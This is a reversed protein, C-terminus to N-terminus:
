YGSAEDLLARRRRAIVITAVRIFLIAGASDLLVDYFSSTRGVLSRQHLEDACAVCFTCLVALTAASFPLRSRPGEWSRRLSITWGRRFLLGLMGYGCFHGVKRLVVNAVEVPTGDTQGWLSHLIDLLWRGTNAGSMTSTSELSIVSLGFLVPLWAMALTPGEGDSTSTQLYNMSDFAGSSFNRDLVCVGLCKVRWVGGREMLSNVSERKTSM